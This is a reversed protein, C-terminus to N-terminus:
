IAAHSRRRVQPSLRRSVTKLRKIIPSSAVQEAVTPTAYPNTVGALWPHTKLQASSPRNHPNKELLMLLFDTALESCLSPDCSVPQTSLLALWPPTLLRVIVGSLSLSLANSVDHWIMNYLTKNDQHYFPYFGHLMVYLTVGLAYM